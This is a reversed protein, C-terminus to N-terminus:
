RTHHRASSRSHALDDPEAEHIVLIRETFPVVADGVIMTGTYLPLKQGGVAKLEAPIPPSFNLVTIEKSKSGLSIAVFDPSMGSAYDYCKLCLTVPGIERVEVQVDLAPAVMITLTNSAAAHRVTGVFIPLVRARNNAKHRCRNTPIKVNPGDDFLRIDDATPILTGVAQFMQMQPTIMFRFSVGSIAFLSEIFYVPVFYPKGQIIGQQLMDTTSLLLGNVSAHVIDLNAFVFSCSAKSVFRASSASFLRMQSSTDM